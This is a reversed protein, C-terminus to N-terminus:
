CALLDEPCWAGARALINVYKNGPSIICDDELPLASLRVPDDSIAYATLGLHRLQALIDRPHFGLEKLLVANVECIVWPRFRELVYRAGRLVPMEAGEVDLKILDLRSTGQLLHDLTRLPVDVTSSHAHHGSNTSSRAAYDPDLYLPATGLHDGAAVPEVQIIHPFGNALINHRLYSVSRPDPEIAIVRGTPGVRRAALLAYLGLNAGVDVVVGGSPCLRQFIHITGPEYRGERLAALLPYHEFGGTLRLGDWVTTIRNRSALRLVRHGLAKLWPRRATHLSRALSRLLLVDDRM